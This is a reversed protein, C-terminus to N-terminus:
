YSCTQDRERTRSKARDQHVALKAVITPDYPTEGGRDEQSSNLRKRQPKTIDSQIKRHSLVQRLIKNPHSIRPSLPINQQDVQHMNQNDVQPNRPSM